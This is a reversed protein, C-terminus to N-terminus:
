GFTKEFWRVVNAKTKMKCCKSIFQKTEDLSKYQSLMRKMSVVDKTLLDNSDACDVFCARAVKSNKKSLERPLTKGCDVCNLDDIKNILTCQACVTEQPIASAVIAQEKSDGSDLSPTEMKNAGPKVTLVANATTAFSVQPVKSFAKAVRPEMPANMTPTFVMYLTTAGTQPMTASLMVLTASKMVVDNTAGSPM